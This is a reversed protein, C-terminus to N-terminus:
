VRGRKIAVRNSQQWLHLCTTVSAVRFIVLGPETGCRRKSGKGGFEVRAWNETRKLLLIGRFIVQIHLRQKKVKHEKSGM